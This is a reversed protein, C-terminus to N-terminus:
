GGGTAGKPRPKDGSPAPIHDPPYGRRVLEARYMELVGAWIDAPRFDREARRRGNEGLRKRLEPDALLRSLAEVLSEASRPEILLGTEGDVVADRCGTVRSGVVPVGCVGAELFVNGFGERRTPVVLIDIAEYLEVPSEIWGLFSVRPDKELTPLVEDPLPDGPEPAGALALHANPFRERVVQWAEELEILGKDRVFRGIFGLLLTDPGLGLRERLPATDRPHRRAFRATEIGNCSGENIVVIKDPKALGLELTAERLSRTVANVRNAVRCALWECWWLIRRKLGHTTELRLGHLTYIRVPVGALWGALAGVLGAKPTSYHLLDFRERRLLRWVEWVARLDKWVSIDRELSVVHVKAVRETKRFTELPPGDACITHVEVGLDTLFSPWGRFLNTLSIPATVMFAIRLPPASSEPNM